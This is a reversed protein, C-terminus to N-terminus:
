SIPKPPGSFAMTLARDVSTDDGMLYNALEYLLAQLHRSKERGLSALGLTLSDPENSCAM